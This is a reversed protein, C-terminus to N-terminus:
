TPESPRAASLGDGAPALFVQPPGANEQSIECIWPGMLVRLAAPQNVLSARWQLFMSAHPVGGSDGGARALLASQPAQGHSSVADVRAWGTGGWGPSKRASSKQPWRGAGSERSVQIRPRASPDSGDAEGRSLPRRATRLGSGATSRQSGRALVQHCPPNTGRGVEDGPHLRRVGSRAWSGSGPQIHGARSVPM